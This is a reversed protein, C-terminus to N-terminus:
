SDRVGLEKLLVAFVAVCPFSVALFTSAVTLQQATLNLPALMATALEKRLFGMILAGIADSPLGLLQSLIPSLLITLYDM